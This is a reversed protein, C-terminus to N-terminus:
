GHGLDKNIPVGLKCLLCNEPLWSELNLNVLSFLESINGGTAKTVGGRNCLVAVGVIEAGNNIAVNVLKKLSKGTTTTDDLILVRKNKILRKYGRKIVFENNATKEAYLAQVESKTLISLHRAVLHSLIIGGVAPGLVVEIKKSSFYDALLKFLYEVYRTHPYLADKNIYTSAHRGSTLIFHENVVLVGLDLFMSIISDEDHKFM